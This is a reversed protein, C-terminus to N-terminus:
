LSSAIDRLAPAVQKRSLDLSAQTWAKIEPQPMDVSLEDEEAPWKELKFKEKGADEFQQAFGATRDNTGMILLDRRFRGDTNTTTMVVAVDLKRSKAYEGLTKLFAEMGGAKKVVWALSRTSVSVGLVIGNDAEWQKYDKRLIEEVTLGSLDTKAQQLGKYFAQRDFGEGARELLETVQVVDLTTVKSKLNATDILIPALALRAIESHMEAPLTEWHTPFRSRFHNLVLTTCSGAPMVTRPQADPYKGEDDHHDVISKVYPNFTNSLPPQLVNHDVLAVSIDTSRIPPLEDVTRVDSPKFSLHHTILYNHEPRLALESRPINLIPVTATARRWFNEREDDPSLLREQKHVESTSVIADLFAYLISSAFSDLDASENGIVLKVPRKALNANNLAKEGTQLFQQFNTFTAMLRSGRLM